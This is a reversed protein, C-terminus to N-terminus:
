VVVEQKIRYEMLFCDDATNDYRDRVIEITLFGVQKFFLLARMNTERLEILILNRRQPSLKEFLKNLMQSGIRQERFGFSVAFNLVHIWTKHRECIIFGIVIGQIKAV